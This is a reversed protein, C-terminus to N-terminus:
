ELSAEVIPVIDEYIFKRVWLTGGIGAIALVGLPVVAKKWFPKRPTPIPEPLPSQTM